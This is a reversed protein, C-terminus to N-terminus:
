VAGDAEGEGVRGSAPYSKDVPEAGGRCTGGQDSPLGTRREPCSERKGTDEGVEPGHDIFRDM